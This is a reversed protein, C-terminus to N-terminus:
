DDIVLVDIKALRDLLRGYTGDARALTLENRMETM